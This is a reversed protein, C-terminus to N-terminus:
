WVRILLAAGACINAWRWRGPSTSGRRCAWACRGRGGADARGWLLGEEDSIRFQTDIPAGELNATIRGQGISAIVSRAVAAAHDADIGFPSARGGMRMGSGRLEIDPNVRIALRPTVGDRAGIALARTAENASEVNITIGAAIAAALEDDRKGPGAFSITRAPKHLLALALEGGSAIDFGDVLSAMAALLPAYPNAKIAYHLDVGVPMAARFQAIRAAVIDMDYVFLPTDGAEDVWSSAERGAIRLPTATGFNRPISGMPKM